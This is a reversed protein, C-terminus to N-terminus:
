MRRGKADFYHGQGDTYLNDSGAVKMLQPKAAELAAEEAKKEAKREARKKLWALFGKIGWCSFLYQLLYVLCIWVPYLVASGPFPLGAVLLKTFWLTLVWTFVQIGVVKAVLVWKKGALKQELWEFAKKITIETLMAIVFSTVVLVLFSSGYEAFFNKIMDM